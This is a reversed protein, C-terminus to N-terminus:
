LVITDLSLFPEEDDSLLVLVGLVLLGVEGRAAAAAVLKSCLVLPGSLPKISLAHKMSIAKKSLQTRSKLFSNSPVYGYKNASIKFCRLELNNM